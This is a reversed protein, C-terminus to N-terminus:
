YNFKYAIGLAFFDPAAQFKPQSVDGDVKNRGQFRTWSLDLTLNQVAEYSLGLGYAINFNNTNYNGNTNAGQQDVKTLLYDVGFKAYIGFMDDFAYKLKGMLDFGQTTYRWVDGFGSETAVPRNFERFYGLEVAFNPHFDWGVFVRGAFGNEKSIGDGFYTSWNDSNNVNGWNSLDMGAQLGVYIGPNFANGVVPAAEVTGNAFAAASLGLAVAGVLLIKKM